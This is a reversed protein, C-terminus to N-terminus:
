ARKVSPLPTVVILQSSFFNVFECTTATGSEDNTNETMSVTSGELMVFTKLLQFGECGYEM